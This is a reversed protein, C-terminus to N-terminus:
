AKRVLIAGAITWAVADNALSSMPPLECITLCAPGTPPKADADAKLQKESSPEDCSAYTLYRWRPLKSLAIAM